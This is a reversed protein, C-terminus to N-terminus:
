LEREGEGFRGQLRPTKERAAALRKVERWEEAAFIGLRDGGSGDRRGVAGPWGDLLGEARAVLAAATREAAENEEARRKRRRVIEEPEFVAGVSLDREFAERERRVAERALAAEQLFKTAARWEALGDPSEGRGEEGSEQGVSSGPVSSPAEVAEGAEVRRALAAARGTSLGASRAAEIVGALGDEVRERAAEAREELERRLAEVRSADVGRTLREAITQHSRMRAYLARLAFRQAAEAFTRGDAGRRAESAGEETAEEAGDALPSSRMRERALWAGAAADLDDIWAREAAAERDKVPRIQLRVRRRALDERLASARVRAGERDRPDPEGGAEFGGELWARLREDLRAGEAREEVGGVRAGALAEQGEELAAVAAREAALAGGEAVAATREWLKEAVLNHLGENTVRGAREMAALAPGLHVHRVKEIGLEAYSGPHFRRAVGVAELEANVAEAFRERLERLWAKGIVRRDKHAAWRWAGEGVREFPRDHYAVHVHYNRGDGHRDPRHIAAVFPLRREDFLQAFRRVARLRAAPEIEHPLEAIIRSQVLGDARETGGESKPRELATFFAARESMTAGINSAVAPEGAEDREVAKDREIYRVHAAATGPARGNPGATTMIPGTREAFRERLHAEAPGGREAYLAGTNREIKGGAERAAKRAGRPADFYVRDRRRADRPPRRKAVHKVTLSFPERGDPTRGRSSRMAPIPAGAKFTPRLLYDRPGLSLTWGSKSFMQKEAAVDGELRGMKQGDLDFDDALLSLLDADSSM